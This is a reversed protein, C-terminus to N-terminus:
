VWIEVLVSGYLGKRLLIRYVIKIGIVIRLIITYIIRTWIGIRVTIIQCISHLCNNKLIVHCAFYHTKKSGFLLLWTVKNNWFFLGQYIMEM